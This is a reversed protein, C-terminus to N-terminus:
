ANAEKVQCRCFVTSRWPASYTRTKGDDTEAEREVYVTLKVGHEGRQVQYGQARWRKYTFWDRYAQCECGREQAAHALILAHASSFTSFTTAVEATMADM